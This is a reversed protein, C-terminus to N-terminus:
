KVTVVVTGTDRSRVANYYHWTGINSFSYEYVGGRAVPASEGFGSLTQRGSQSVKMSFDSENVFTVTTGKAVTIQAPGFGYNTYTVVTREPGGGKEVTQGMFSGNATTDRTSKAAPTPTVSQSLHQKPQVMETLSTNGRLLFWGVLVGAALILLAFFVKNSM